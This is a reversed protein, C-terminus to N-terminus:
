IDVLQNNRPDVESVQPRTKGKDLTPKTSWTCPNFFASVFIPKKSLRYEYIIANELNM